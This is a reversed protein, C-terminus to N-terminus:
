IIFSLNSMNKLDHFTLLGEDNMIDLLKIEQESWQKLFTPKGGLPLSNNRFITTQNHWQVEWNGLKEIQQWTQISHTIIPGFQTRCFIPTLASFQVDKLTFPSVINEETELWPLFKIKILNPLGLGGFGKPQQLTSM